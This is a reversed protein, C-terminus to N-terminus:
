CMLVFNNRYSKAICTLQFDTTYAPTRFRAVLDQDFQKLDALVSYRVFFSYKLNKRRLHLLDDEPYANEFLPYEAFVRKLFRGLQQLVFATEPLKM